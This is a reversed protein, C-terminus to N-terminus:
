RGRGWWWIAAQRRWAAAPPKGRLGRRADLALCALLAFAPAVESAANGLAAEASAIEALASAHRGASCLATAAGARLAAEPAEGGLARASLAFLPAEVERGLAAIGADDEPEDAYLEDRRALLWGVFAEVPLGRSLMTAILAAAVPNNKAEAARLGEIAEIWWTLRMEGALPERTLGKVRAIEFAFASIAHLDRRSPEPAFLAAIWFDRRHERVLAGCHRYAESLAEDSV